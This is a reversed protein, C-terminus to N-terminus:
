LKLAKVLDSVLPMEYYEGSLAKVVGILSLVVIVATLIFAIAWGIIPFWGIAANFLMVVVDIIFLALAQKAHFQAFKSDKATLLPIFCLIFIYGVAAIAKNEEVDKNSSNANKEPM